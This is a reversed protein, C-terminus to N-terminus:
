EKKPGPVFFSLCGGTGLGDFLLTNHAPEGKGSIAKIVENGVVGGM